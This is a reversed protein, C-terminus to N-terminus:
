EEPPSEARAKVAKVVLASTSVAIAAELQPQESLLYKV